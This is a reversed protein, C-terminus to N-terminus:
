KFMPIGLVLVTKIKGYTKYITKLLNFDNVMRSKQVKRRFILTNKINKLNWGYADFYCRAVKVKGICLWFTIELLHILALILIVPLAVVCSYNKLINRVANKENLYRRFYSTQYENKKAEGVGGVVTGGSYHYFKSEYCPIIKYGMIRARWSFDIDEQFIFLADDFMGIDFFDTKKVFIAAGDAYFVRTKKGDVKFSSDFVAFPYGFIDMGCGAMGVKDWSKNKAIIQAPNLISKPQYNKALQEITDPFLETDNNLFLLFAGSAKKAGINNAGTYGLNDKNQVIKYGPYHKQVFSVSKDISNNDLVIVEINQYTQQKISKLCIKLYDLGNYNLVLISIKKQM